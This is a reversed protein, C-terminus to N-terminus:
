RPPEMVGGGGGKKDLWNSFMELVRKESPSILGGETEWYDFALGILGAWYM